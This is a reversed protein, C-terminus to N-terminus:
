ACCLLSPTAWAVHVSGRWILCRVSHCRICKAHSHAIGIVNTNM